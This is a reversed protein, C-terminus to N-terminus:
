SYAQQWAAKEGIAANGSFFVMEVSNKATEKGEKGRAFLRSKTSPRNM